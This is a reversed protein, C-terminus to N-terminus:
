AVLQNCRAILSDMYEAYQTTVPDAIANSTEIQSMATHTKAVTCPHGTSVYTSLRIPNSDENDSRGYM